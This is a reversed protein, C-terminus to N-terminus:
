FFTKNYVHYYSWLGHQKTTVLSKFFYLSEKTMTLIQTIIFEKIAFNHLIFKRLHLPSSYLHNLYSIAGSKKLGKRNSYFLVFETPMIEYILSNLQSETNNINTEDPIRKNAFLVFYWMNSEKNDWFYLLIKFKQQAFLSVFLMIVSYKFNYLYLIVANVKLSM